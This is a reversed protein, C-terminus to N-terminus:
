HGGGGCGFRRPLIPKRRSFSADVRRTVLRSRRTGNGRSQTPM